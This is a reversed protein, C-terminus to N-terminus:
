RFLTDPSLLEGAVGPPSCFGMSFTADYGILRRLEPPFDAAVDPPCSLYQNEEQRLWDLTYHLLLGERVEVTDNQGGGHIVSGNYVLVSGAPMEARLIEDPEARRDDDWHHSGPVVRTAGNEAAFDTLAWVMSFQTEITRPVHDGWVGRDRHLPQHGQGAGIAALQTLHLQINDAHRGLLGKAAATLVPDLVLRHSTRSRAMIAGVRRTQHGTFGDRGNASTELHPRLEDRIEEVVAGDVYRELIVAGDRDLSELIQEPTVAGTLRTLTLDTTSTM